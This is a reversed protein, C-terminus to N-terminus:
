QNFQIVDHVVTEGPDLQVDVRGEVAVPTILGFDLTIISRGEPELGLDVSVSGLPTGDAIRVASLVVTGRDPGGYTHFALSKAVGRFLLFDGDDRAVSVDEGFGDGPVNSSSDLDWKWPLTPDTVKSNQPSFQLISAQRNDLVQAQFVPKWLPTPSQEDLVFVGDGTAVFVRADSPWGPALAIGKVFARPLGDITLQEWTQEGPLRLRYVGSSWTAAYLWPEGASMGVALGTVRLRPLGAGASNVSPVSDDLIEMVGDGNDMAVWLRRNTVPDYTPDIVLGNAPKELDTVLNWKNSTMRYIEGSQGCLYVDSHPPAPQFSPAIALNVAYPLPGGGVVGNANQYTNGGDLSVYIENAWAGFYMVQDLSDAAASFGPSLALSRIYRVLRRGTGVETLPLTRAGIIGYRNNPPDVVPDFWGCIGSTGGAYAAGDFVFNPSVALPLTHVQGMNQPAAYEVGSSLDHNQLGQGYSAAFVHQHEFIDTAVAVNRAELTTRLALEWWLHGENESLFLGENRGYLVRGTNAYDPLVVLQAVFRLPRYGSAHGPEHELGFCQDNGEDSWTQGRNRSMLVGTNSYGNVGPYERGVAYVTAAREPGDPAAAISMVSTGLTLERTFSDGDDGSVHIEGQDGTATFAERGLGVYVKAATTSGYDADLALATIHWGSFVEVTEWTGPAGGDRSRYLTENVALFVNATENAARYDFSPSLAIGGIGVNRGADFVQGWRGGGSGSGLRYLKGNSTLLFSPQQGPGRGDPSVIYKVKRQVGQLPLGDSFKSVTGMGGVEDPQYRWVGNETGIFFIGQGLGNGWLLSPNYSVTTPRETDLEDGTLLGFSILGDRSSLVTKDDTVVVVEERGDSLIGVAVSYANDHPAHLFAGALPPLLLAPVFLGRLIRFSASPLGHHM